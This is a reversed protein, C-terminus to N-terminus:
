WVEAPALKQQLPEGQLIHREVITEVDDPQIESYMIGDPYILVNSGLHCPGLCGTQTLAVKGVLKKINIQNAFAQFISGAGCAVCSGRPHGDARSQACVFVHYEPKPM